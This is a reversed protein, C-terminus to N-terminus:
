IYLSILLVDSTAPFFALVNLSQSVVPGIEIDIGPADESGSISMAYRGNQWICLLNLLIDFTVFSPPSGQLPFMGGKNERGRVGKGCGYGDHPPPSASNIQRQSTDNAARLDWRRRKTRHM